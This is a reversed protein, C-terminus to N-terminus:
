NFFGLIGKWWTGINRQTIKFKVTKTGGYYGIGQLTVTATGKKVNNTYGTIVYHEGLKLEQVKKGLKISTIDSEEITVPRGTYEKNSIKFAMKSIDKGTDVIRYETNTEGTYNGRGKVTVRVITGAPVPESLLQGNADTYSYVKEYDTGAKLKKGDTDTLVPTSKYKGAKTTYIMDKATVTVESIDKPQIYFTRTVSPTGKYNGKFTIVATGETNAKTNKSYKVTYDTGETLDGVTVEPKSGGKSYYAELVSVLSDKPSTDATITYTVKKTGTYNNIGKVTVTAKGANTNKEYSVIEYDTGETLPTGNYTLVSTGSPIEIEEGTYPYSLLVPKVKKDTLSIGTIKVTVTRKGYYGREENGQIVFSVTGVHAYDEPVELMYYDEDERSLITKKGNKVTIRGFLDNVPDGTLDAYSIPKSSVSLKAVSVLDKSTVHVHVERTGSFNGKGTITIKVDGKEPANVRDWTGYDVTYDTKNKLKKGNFYVVPVPSLTKGTAQVSLEDVTIRDDYLDVPDITFYVTKTGAYNGKKNSKIIIQPAKKKDTATPNDPDLVKYAKTTNKYTVTYDTKNKLLINRDYVRFEITKKTGDYMVSEPVGAVWVGDPIDYSSDILQRDEELIEGWRQEEELAAISEEAATLMEYNTVRNKQDDTLAEYASLVEEVQAKDDLTMEEPLENIRTIVDQVQLEDIISEAETLVDYNIILAKQDETLAEYATRVSEVDKQDDLTLSEPLDNIMAMVTDAAAKDTELKIIMREASELVNLNTVFSKQDDKLAEYAQRVAAVEEKDELTIVEPLSDIKSIVDQIQLDSLVLEANELEAYNTIYEKQEETLQEYAERVTIIVEESDLTVEGINDILEIVNDIQLQSLTNEADVLTEYNTVLEKQTDTLLDYAERASNIADVSALTVEGIADILNSVNEAPIEVLREEAAVLVDYNTVKQKQSSSLKTYATRAATVEDKKELTVEGIQDILSIVQDIQLASLTNEAAVLISYNTVYSRIKTPVMSYLKRAEKIVSESELTVTGIRNIADIANQVDLTVIIANKLYDNGTKISILGWQSWTGAYDVRLLNSCGSFVATEILRVSSPLTVFRLSSCGWFAYEDISTVYEPITISQLRSCNIFLQKEIVSLYKPLTVNSLKTCNGFLTHGLSTISDPLVVSTLSTCGSFANSGISKVSDPITVSQLSTCNPFVQDGITTVRNPITISTLSKCGFFTGYDISTIKDPLVITRLKECESFSMSGIISVTSPISISALSKCGAFSFSGMFDVGYPINVSTLSSCNQFAGANITKLGAPLSVSTVNTLGYFAYSGIYTIGSGVVIKTIQSAKSSWEPLPSVNSYDEMYGSGSITLTGGSISYTVGASTYSEEESEEDPEIDQSEKEENDASIAEEQNDESETNIEEEPEETNETEPEPTVEADEQGEQGTVEGEAPDKEEESSIEEEAPVTEGESETGEEVVTEEQEQTIEETVAPTEEPAETEATEEEQLVETVPEETAEPVDEGEAYVPTVLNNFCMFFAMLMSLLRNSNKYM